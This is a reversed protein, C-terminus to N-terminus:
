GAKPWGRGSPALPFGLSQPASQWDTRRHIQIQRDGLATEGSQARGGLGKRECGPRSRWLTGADDPRLRIAIRYEAIAEEPNDQEKLVNGLQFHIFWDEPRIQSAERLVSVAAALVGAAESSRGRAKLVRALGGKHWGNKPQLRELDRFVAIADDLEGKFELCEALEHASEPRISRATMYYRIAEERRALNELCRALNYNLWFDGPYRRQAQRLVGEAAQSDGADRLASGLANLSVPDLEDVRAARALARLADLRKSQDALALATRLGDRWPDPDASRAAQALREAGPRDRKLDRRVAAWDDLAAALTAAVAAPRARIKAGAQDPLLAIMDLGAQRFAAAYSADTVSGGQDDAKAARIDILDDMLKLDAAAATV